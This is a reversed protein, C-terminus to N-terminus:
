MLRNSTIFDKFWSVESMEKRYCFYFKKNNTEKLRLPFIYNSTKNLVFQAPVIGWGLEANIMKAITSYNPYVRKIKLKHKQIKQEHIFSDFLPDDLKYTVCQIDALLPILQKETLNKKTVFCKPVVLNFTNLTFPKLIIESSDPASHVIAVESTGDLVSEIAGVNNMPILTLTGPFNSSEAILDLFEGRGCINLHASKPNSFTLITQDVHVQTELIGPAIKQFLNNGFITLVKERGSITFLKYPLLTELMIMQKSLTSQTIKLKNAALQFTTEKAAFVFSELLYLPIRNNQNM